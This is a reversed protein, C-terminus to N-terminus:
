SPPSLPIGLRASELPGHVLGGSFYSGRHSFYLQFRYGIPLPQNHAFRLSRTPERYPRLPSATLNGFIVAVQNTGIVRIESIVIGGTMGAPPNIFIKDSPSIGSV